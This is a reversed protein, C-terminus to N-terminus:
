YHAVGCGCVKNTKFLKYFFRLIKWIIGMLGSKHCNCSCNENDPTSLKIGCGDCTGDNNNDSHGTESIYDSIYTDGCECTYTTYGRETCTPATIVTEYNHKELKEIKGTYTDGCACIFTMLGEELHTAPITIEPKHHHGTAPITETTTKGCGSCELTKRGATTCTAEVVIKEISYNHEVPANM